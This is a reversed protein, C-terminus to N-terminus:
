SASRDDVLRGATLTLAMVVLVLGAVPWVLAAMVLAWTKLHGHPATAYISLVLIIAVALYLHLGSM